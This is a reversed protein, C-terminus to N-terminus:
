RLVVTAGALGQASLSLTGTRGDRYVILWEMPYPRNEAFVPHPVTKVTISEVALRLPGLPATTGKLVLTSHEVVRSYADLFASWYSGNTCVTDAIGKSRLFGALEDRFARLTLLADFVAHQAPTHSGELTLIPMVETLFDEASRDLSTHLAWNCYFALTPFNGHQSRDHEFLKRVQTLVYVVGEEEAIPLRKMRDNLKAVIDNDM